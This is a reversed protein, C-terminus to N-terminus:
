LALGVGGRPGAGPQPIPVSMGERGALALRQSALSCGTSGAGADLDLFTMM